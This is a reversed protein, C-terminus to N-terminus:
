PKPLSQDPLQCPYIRHEGKVKGRKEAQEIAYDMVNKDVFSVMMLM